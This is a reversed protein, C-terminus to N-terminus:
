FFFFFTLDALFAFDAAGASAGAAASFASVVAVGTVGATGVAAGAVSSEDLRARAALTSSASSSYVIWDLSKMRYKKKRVTDIVKSFDHSMTMRFWKSKRKHRIEDNVHSEKQTLPLTHDPRKSIKPQLIM